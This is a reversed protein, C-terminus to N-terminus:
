KKPDDFSSSLTLTLLLEKISTKDAKDGRRVKLNIKEGALLDLANALKFWESWNPTPKGNCETIIDGAKLGAAEGALKAHVADVVLEDAGSKPRKFEVGMTGPNLTELTAKM